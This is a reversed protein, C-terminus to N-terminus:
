SKNFHDQLQQDVIEIIRKCLFQRDCEAEVDM